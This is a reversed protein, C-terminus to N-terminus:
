KALDDLELPTKGPLTAKIDDIIIFCDADIKRALHPLERAERRPVQIFLLQIPGQLGKGEFQTVRYGKDRLALSMAEGDHTFVRVVREGRAWLREATMGLFTGTAFGLAYFVAYVPNDLNKVVGSVAIVWILAECFAIFWATGRRGAGVSAVRLVGLSVDAMRALAILAGGYVAEWTVTAPDFPM